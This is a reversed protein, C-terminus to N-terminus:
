RRKTGRVVKSHRPDSALGINEFDIETLTTEAGSVDLESFWPEIDQTVDLDLEPPHHKSDRRPSSM